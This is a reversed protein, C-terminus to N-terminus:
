LAIARSGAIEADPSQSSPTLSQLTNATELPVRAKSTQNAGQPPKVVTRLAPNIRDLPKGDPTKWQWQFGRRLLDMKASIPDKGVLFKLCDDAESFTWIGDKRTSMAFGHHFENCAELTASINRLYAPRIPQITRRIM